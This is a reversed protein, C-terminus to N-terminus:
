KIMGRVVDAVAEGLRQQNADDMHVGDLKSSVAYERADLFAIEYREAIERYWKELATSKKIGVEYEFVDGLWSTLLGDNLPPPSILLIDYQTPSSYQRHTLVKQLFRDMEWAIDQMSYNYKRKLDNTGLMIIVLDVPSHSELCPLIYKIGNKEGEPIDDTAINRGCQGEEIVTFGLGLAAQLSVPWRHPLRHGVCAPDDGWTLSDGFCLIRYKIDDPIFTPQRDTATETCIMAIM